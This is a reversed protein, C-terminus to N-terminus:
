YGDKPGAQMGPVGRSVLRALLFLVLVLLLTYVLIFAGLSWVVYIVPLDKSLGEPTKLLTYVLWPQRGVETVMWGTTNAIYPLPVALVAAKLFLPHLHWAKKRVFSFVLFGLLGFMIFGSGVMVRFSWFVLTVPPIYNDPGYRESFEAQLDRMGKVTGTINDHVLLSLLYPIELTLDNKRNKEDIVTFLVMGPGKKTEWLAEAAALKMPQNRAVHQASFHGVFIVGAVGALGFIAAMGMSRKYVESGERKKLLQWASIGIVFFAATAICAFVVHWFMLYLQPNKLFAIFDVLEVRGNNLRYGMPEQMFANASIIWFASLMSGFAVMWLCFAHRAPTLKRWGFIWVGIFVSELFFAAWSEIALPPGFVDGVYSSFRAWNLGFQFELTIGTVIGMGVSILFFGSWFRVMRLYVDKKKVVYLTEMVAMMLALGLSLPVFLFHYISTVAFQWRSLMLADM